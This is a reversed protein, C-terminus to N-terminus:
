LVFTIRVECTKGSIEKETGPFLVDNFKKTMNGCIRKQDTVTETKGEKEFEQSNKLITLIKYVTEWNTNTKIKGLTLRLFHVKPLTGCLHFTKVEHYWQTCSIVMVKWPSRLSPRKTLISGELKRRWLMEIKGEM